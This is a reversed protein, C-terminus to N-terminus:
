KLLNKAAQFGAKACVEDQDGSAGSVGIARLLKGDAMLHHKGEFKAKWLAAKMRADPLDAVSCCNSPSARLRTIACFNSCLASQAGM